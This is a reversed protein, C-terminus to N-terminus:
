FIVGVGGQQLFAVCAKLNYLTDPPPIISRSRPAPSRGSTKPKLFLPPLTLRLLKLKSRSKYKFEAMPTVSQGIM